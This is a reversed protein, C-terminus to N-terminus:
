NFSEAVCSISCNALSPNLVSGGILVSQVRGDWHYPVIVTRSTCSTWIPFHRIGLEIRDHELVGTFWTWRHHMEAGGLPQHTALDDLPRHYSSIWECCDRSCQEILSLIVHPWGELTAWGICWHM